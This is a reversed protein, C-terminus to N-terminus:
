KDQETSLASHVPSGPVMLGQEIIERRVRAAKEPTDVYIPLNPRRGFVHRWGIDINRGRFGVKIEITPVTSATVSALHDNDRNQAILMRYSFKAITRNLKRVTARDRLERHRVIENVPSIKRSGRLLLDAALPFLLEVPGSEPYPTQRHAPETPDYFCVPNDSTLFPTATRNHLVEFGMGFCLDGFARMEDFMAALTREPNAAVPVMDLKGAYAAYAEPLCGARELAQVGARLEADLLLRNRDRAAPVRTRLLTAMALVNFSIAPSLRQDRVAQLTAPWGQEIRGWHDELRHADLDGNPLLRSYYHKEYGITEPRAAHPTDPRSPLYSWVRGDGNAFGKMYVVSVYHHRKNRRDSRGPNLPLRNVPVVDGDVPVGGWPGLIMVPKM